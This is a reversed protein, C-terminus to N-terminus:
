VGKLISRSNGYMNECIGIDEEIRGLESLSETREVRQDCEYTRHSYHNLIQFFEKLRSLEENKTSQKDSNNLYGQNHEEYSHLLCMAKERDKEITDNLRQIEHFLNKKRAELM